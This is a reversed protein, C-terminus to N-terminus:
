WQVVLSAWFLYIFLFLFCFFGSPEAEPLWFHYPAGCHPTVLPGSWRQPEEGVDMVGTQDCSLMLCAWTLPPAALSRVQGWLPGLFDPVLVTPFATVALLPRLLCSSEMQTRSPARLCCLPCRPFFLAWVTFFRRAICSVWTWDRPRSSGRSSSIAGWELIRTQLIGHVSSRPGHPWFSDSM